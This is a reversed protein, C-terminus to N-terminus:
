AHSDRHNTLPMACKDKIEGARAIPYEGVQM